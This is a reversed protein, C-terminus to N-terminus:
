PHCDCGCSARKCRHHEEQECLVSVRLRTVPDLQIMRRSRVARAQPTVLQPYRRFLRELHFFQGFDQKTWVRDSLLFVCYKGLKEMERKLPLFDRDMTALILTDFQDCLRRATDVILQDPYGRGNSIVFPECVLGHRSLKRAHGQLRRMRQTREDSMGPKDEPLSFFYHAKVSNALGLKPLVQLLHQYNPLRWSPHNQNHWANINDGDILLLAQDAVVASALAM